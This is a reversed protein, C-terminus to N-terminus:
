TFHNGFMDWGAVKERSFLEVRKLDGTLEVIKDRVEPPKASHKGIPAHIVSHVSASLRKPKGKVGILCIESNSRTWSGMGWFPTGSNKNTKVWNFGITKYAFGWAEILKLAEAIKPFTAWMFLISDKDAVGDVDINAMEDFSMTAYHREAGGKNLSKNTYSWPPDAYIIKYQKDSAILNLDEYHCM